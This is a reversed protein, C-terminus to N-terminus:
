ARGRKMERDPRFPTEAPRKYALAAQLREFLWFCAPTLIAGSAALVLWQWLSGWGILPQYGGGWLSLVTMLPAGVCAAMGLISRAYPQDRLVLDRTQYVILGVLFYPLVSIGLPNASLSDTWLGGLVATATLTGLGTTLACYVMLVPLVDVQAGIWNRLFGVSGALFIAVYAVLLIAIRNVQKISDGGM